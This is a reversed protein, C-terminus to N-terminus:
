CSTASTPWWSACSATALRTGPDVGKGVLQKTFHGQLAAFTKLNNSRMDMEMTTWPNDEEM